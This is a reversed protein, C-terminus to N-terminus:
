MVKGFSQTPNSQAGQQAGKVPFAQSLGGGVGEIASIQM